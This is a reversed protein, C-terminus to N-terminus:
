PHLSWRWGDVGAGPGRLRRGHDSWPSTRPRPKTGVDAAAARAAVIGAVLAALEVDDPVGRVVRLEAATLDGSEGTASSM